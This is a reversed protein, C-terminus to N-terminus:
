TASPSFHSISATHSAIEDFLFQGFSHRLDYIPAPDPYGPAVLGPCVVNIELAYTKRGDDLFDVACYRAGCANKLAIALELEGGKARYPLKRCGPKAHKQSEWPHNRQHIIRGGVIEDGFIMLRKEAVSEVYQQMLYDELNEGVRSRVDGLSDASVFYVRSGDAGARHKLILPRDSSMAAIEEWSGPETQEPFWHPQLRKLGAKDLMRISQLPNLYLGVHLVQLAAYLDELFRLGFDPGSSNVGFVLLADASWSGRSQQLESSLLGGGNLVRNPTTFGLESDAFHHRLASLLQRAGRYLVSGDFDDVCVVLKRQMSDEHEALTTRAQRSQAPEIRVGGRGSRWRRLWEPFLGM